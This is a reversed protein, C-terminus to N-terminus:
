SDVSDHSPGRPIPPPDDPNRPVYIGTPAAFADLRDRMEDTITHGETPGLQSEGAPPDPELVMGTRIPEIPIERVDPGLPRAVWQDLADLLAPDYWGIRARLADLAERKSPARSLVADFDFGLKLLRSGLPLANGTKTGPAAPGNFRVPYADIIEMVADMGPISRLLERAVRPAADLQRREQEGLKSGRSAALLLEKSIAVSGLQSLVAAVDIEWAEAGPVFQAWDRILRQVRVARGFETPNVLELIEGLVRVSGRRTRDLLEREAWVLRYQELAAALVGTLEDPPTPKTLFRFIGGSNVVAIAQRIEAMGTLLIRIPDPFDKRVRTLFEIGDMGPMQLDSVVVAFPGRRALAELGDSGGPATDVFFRKRLQREVGALLNADDDVFLIKQTM